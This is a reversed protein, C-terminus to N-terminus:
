ITYCYFPKISPFSKNNQKDKRDEGTFIVFLELALLASKLSLCLSAYQVQHPVSSNQIFVEVKIFKMFVLDNAYM